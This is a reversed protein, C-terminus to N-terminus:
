KAYGSHCIRQSARRVPDLADLVRHAEGVWRMLADQDAPGLRWAERSLEALFARALGQRHWTEADEILQALLASDVIPPDIHPLAAPAGGSDPVPERWDLGVDVDDGKPLPAKPPADGAEEKAWFGRPPTPILHKRCVKKVWADSCGLRPALRSAPTEWVAKYLESRRMGM